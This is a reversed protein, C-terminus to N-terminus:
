DCRSKTSRGHNHHGCGFGIEFMRLKQRSIRSPMLNECYLDGYTHHYFKDDELEKGLIMLPCTKMDMYNLNHIKELLQRSKSSQMASIAPNVAFDLEIVAITGITISCAIGAFFAHFLGESRKGPEGASQTQM